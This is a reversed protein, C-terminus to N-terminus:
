YILQTKLFEIEESYDIDPDETAKELKNILSKIFENFDTFDKNHSSDDESRLEITDGVFKVKCQFGELIEYLKKLLGDSLDKNYNEVVIRESLKNLVSLKISKGLELEM